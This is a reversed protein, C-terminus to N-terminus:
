RRRASCPRRAVAGTSTTCRRAHDAKARTGVLSAALGALLGIGVIVLSQRLVMRLIDRPEAGLAMRIGIEHTRQTAAYSVVSYVGVVALM